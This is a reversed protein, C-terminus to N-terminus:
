EHFKLILSQRDNGISVIFSWRQNKQGNFINTTQSSLITADQLILM